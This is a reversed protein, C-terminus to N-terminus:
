APQREHQQRLDWLSPADPCQREQGDKCRGLPIRALMVLPVLLQGIPSSLHQELDRAPQGVPADDRDGVAAESRDLYEIGHTSSDAHDGAQAEIGSQEIWWWTTSAARDPAWTHDALSLWREGL